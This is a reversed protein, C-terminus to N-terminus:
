RRRRELRVSYSGNARGLISMAGDRDTRYVTVGASELRDLVAPSPHGYRNNRGVSIMAVDPRMRALLLSDTSTDSGHHGVKLVELDETFDAVMERETVKYADGTLLADFDGYRLHLVVSSLNSEEPDHSTDISPHMVTLMLGDLEVQDGASARQWTVAREQAFQLLEVYEAKPAPLAPDLVTLVDFSALISAAGGFHDLDPHTLILAELRHVSRARLARVAAHGGPDSGRGPPGADVLIWRGRPSRIGIADGQGVDIMYIEVTGSAQLALLLPWASLLFLGYVFTLVRRSAARVRAQASTIRAVLVGGAAAWVTSRSVWVSAWPRASLGEAFRQVGFLLVDVGGALFAAASPWIFDLVLSVIAGPLAVAIVPGALLTAPIGVLSVREFHWAVVPLTALTAAAGVAVASAVVRPCRRRSTRLLAESWQASWAMLGAAGAFSLQFGPNSLKDPDTLLLILFAAALAGWRAPPRGKAGSVAVLGFILAARSAAAPFGIFGVYIWAIMAAWVRARRRPLGCRRLLAFAIGALVGVHFGSIALLHALGTRAFTERLEPDFGERRALTLAATLPARPGYLRGLRGALGARWRVAAWKWEPEGDSDLLTLEDAQVWPRVRGERWSGVVRVPRGAPVTSTERLVVTIPECGQSAQLPGSGGVPVALFRGRVEAAGSTPVACGSRAKVGATVIVGALATVAWLRWTRPRGSPQIPVMLSLAALPPAWWASAGISIWAVGAAFALALRAVPPAGRM